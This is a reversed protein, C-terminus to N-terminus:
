SLQIYDGNIMYCQYFKETFGDPFQLNQSPNQSILESENWNYCWENEVEQPTFQQYDTPIYLSM